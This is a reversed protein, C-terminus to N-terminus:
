AAGPAPPPAGSALDAKLKWEVGYLAPPVLTALWALWLWFTYDVDIMGEMAQGAAAEFGPPPGFESPDFKPAEFEGGGPVQALMGAAAFGPVGGEGFGPAGGAGFGPMVPAEPGGMSPGEEMSAKVDSEVPFGAIVQILLLLAAAGGCAAAGPIGLPFGKTATAVGLGIGALVVLLWLIMLPAASVDEEEKSQQGGMQQGMEEMERIMEGESYGGFAAQIGSQTLMTQNQCKVDVWPLCSLLLAFILSGPSVWRGRQSQLFELVQQPM